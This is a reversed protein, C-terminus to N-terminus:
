GPGEGLSIRAHLYNDHHDSAAWHRDPAERFANEIM